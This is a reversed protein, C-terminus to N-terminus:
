GGFFDDASPTALANAFGAASPVTELKPAAPKKKAPAKKRPQRIADPEAVPETVSAEPRPEELADWIDLQDGVTQTSHAPPPPDIKAAHRARLHELDDPTVTVYDAGCMRIIQRVQVAIGFRNGRKAFCPLEYIHEVRSGVIADASSAWRWTHKQLGAIEAYESAAKMNVALILSKM